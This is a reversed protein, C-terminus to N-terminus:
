HRRRRDFGPVPLSKLQPKQNGPIPIALPDTFM